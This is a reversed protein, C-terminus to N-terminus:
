YIPLKKGLIQLLSFKRVTATQDNKVCRISIGCDSFLSGRQKWSSRKIAIPYNRRTMLLMRVIKENGKIIFYGGWEQEHESHKVLDKPTMDVLHCRDSTM